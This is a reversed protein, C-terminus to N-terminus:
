IVNNFIYFVFVNGFIKNKMVFDRVSVINGLKKFINNKIM